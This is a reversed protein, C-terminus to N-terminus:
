AHWGFSNTITRWADVNDSGVPASVTLVLETGKRWFEYREVARVVVKSTVPNPASDARYTIKIATGATRSVTTVAGPVFGHEAAKIAPLETASSSAVTPAKAAPLSEIRVSNFKDTFLTTQGTRTMAWGAPIKLSYARTPSTYLPFKQTDPIDGPPPSETANPNPAGSGANSSAGNAATSHTGSPGPSQSGSGSSTCANAVLVVPLCVVAVRLSPRRPHHRHKM